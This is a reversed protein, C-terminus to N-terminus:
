GGVTTETGKECKEGSEFGRVEGADKNKKEGAVSNKKKVEKLCEEQKKKKTM